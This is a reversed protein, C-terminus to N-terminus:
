KEDKNEEEKKEEEENANNEVEAKAKEAAERAKLLEERKELLLKRKEEREQLRKERLAEIEKIKEERESLKKQKLAEKQALKEQMEETMGNEGLLKKREAVKDLKAQKKQDIDILKVVLESIDYKKNSYLMVLDSSKDFVFDFKKRTAITQVANYVQDQVPQILKKRLNYMDGNPGFYLSELKTLAQQKVTIDEEREEIIDQTLIAKENELDSKMIEIERADKDLDNKWKEVKANLTNQAELYEPVQKLIYEMDIYAVRQTKQAFSSISILLLVFTGFFNNRM